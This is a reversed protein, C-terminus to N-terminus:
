TGVAVSAQRGVDPSAQTGNKRQDAPNNEVKYFLFVPQHPVPGHLRDEKSACREDDRDGYTHDSSDKFYGV